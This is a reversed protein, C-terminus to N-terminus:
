NGVLSHMSVDGWVVSNVPLFMFAIGWFYIQIKKPVRCTQQTTWIWDSFLDIDKIESFECEFESDFQFRFLAQLANLHRFTWAYNTAPRPLTLLLLHMQLCFNFGNLQSATGERESEREGEGKAARWLSSMPMEKECVSGVSVKRLPLWEICHM